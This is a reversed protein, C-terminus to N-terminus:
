PRGWGSDSPNERGGCRPFGRLDVPQPQERAVGLAGSHDGRQGRPVERALFVLGPLRQNPESTGDRGETQKGCLRHERRTAGEEQLQSRWVPELPLRERELFLVFRPGRKRIRGRVRLIRKEFRALARRLSRGRGLRMGLQQHFRKM